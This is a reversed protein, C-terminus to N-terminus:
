PFFREQTDFRGREETETIFVRRQDIRHQAFRGSLECGMTQQEVLENDALGIRASDVTRTKGILDAGNLNMAVAM